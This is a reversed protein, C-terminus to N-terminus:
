AATPKMMTRIARHVLSPRFSVCMECMTSGPSVAEIMIDGPAIREDAFSDRESHAQRKRLLRLDISISPDICAQPLALALHPLSIADRQQDAAADRDQDARQPQPPPVSTIRRILVPQEAQTQQTIPFM